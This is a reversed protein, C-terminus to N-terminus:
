AARLRSAQGFVTENGRTALWDGEDDHDLNILIRWGDENQFAVVTGDTDNAYGSAYEIPRGRLLIEAHLSDNAGCPAQVLVCERNAGRSETLMLLAVPVGDETSFMITNM